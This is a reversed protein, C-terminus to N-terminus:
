NGYHVRIWERAQRQAEEIEVRTMEAAIEARIERATISGCIAAINLWKHAEVYNRDFGHGSAYRLGLDFLNDVDTENPTAAAIGEVKMM